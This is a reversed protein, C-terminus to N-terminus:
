LHIRLDRLAGSASFSGVQPEESGELLDPWSFRPYTASTFNYSKFLEVQYPVDCRKM